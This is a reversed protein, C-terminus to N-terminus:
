EAHKGSFNLGRTIARASEIDAGPACMTEIGRRAKDKAEEFLDAFSARCSVGTFPNEWLRHERNEFASEELPVARWSMAQCLSHRRAIREANGIVTRKLGSKSHFLATARRYARVGEAFLSRPVLEGYTVLIAYCYMKSVISLVRRSARLISKEPSFTAVTAGTRAFLVAEDFESEIVAHVESGDKSTLGAVGAGCIAYQQAFVLPHVVSDLVYHGVFGALYAKGIPQEHAPLVDASRRLASLLESPKENHMRSGVRAYRLLWPVTAIFFLPDPGQNGLLFADREDRTQGIADPLANTSNAIEEYLDRGFFDHTILAPVPECGKADRAALRVVNDSANKVRRASRIM